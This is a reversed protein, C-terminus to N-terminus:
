ERVVLVACPAHRVVTEAVSGLMVHKLGTRGHTGMVVLDFSPDARLLAILEEWPVGVLAQTTVLRAGTQKAEHEWDSLAREVEHEIDGVPAALPPEGLAPVHPQWVHVLVLQAGTDAGMASAIYLAKRAPASFDVAVLIKKFRMISGPASPTGDPKHESEMPNMSLQFFPQDNM